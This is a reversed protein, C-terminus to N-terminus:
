HSIAVSSFQAACIAASTAAMTLDGYNDISFVAVRAPGAAIYIVELWNQDPSAVIDTPAGPLPFPSM